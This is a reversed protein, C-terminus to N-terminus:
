CLYFNFIFFDILDKFNVNLNRKFLTRKEEIISKHEQYIVPIKEAWNFVKANEIQDENSFVNYLLLEIMRNQSRELMLPLDISIITKM